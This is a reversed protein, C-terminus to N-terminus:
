KQNIAQMLFHSIIFPDHIEMRYEPRAEYTLQLNWLCIHVSYLSDIKLVGWPHFMGSFTLIADQYKCVPLSPSEYVSWSNQLLAQWLHKNFCVQSYALEIPIHIGITLNWNWHM